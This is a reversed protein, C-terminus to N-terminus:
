YRWMDKSNLLQGWRSNYPHVFKTAGAKNSLSNGNNAYAFIGGELNYVSSAGSSKLLQMLRNAMKSSRVGVSCYFIIKKSALKDGFRAAFRAQQAPALPSALLLALAAATISILRRTTSM